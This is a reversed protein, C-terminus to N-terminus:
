KIKEILKELMKENKECAKKIIDAQTALETFLPDACYKKVTEKSFKDSLAMAEDRLYEDDDSRLIQGLDNFNKESFLDFAASYLSNSFDIAKGTKNNIVEWCSNITAGTAIFYCKEEFTKSYNEMTDHDYPQVIIGECFDYLSSSICVRIRYLLKQLITNYKEVESYFTKLSEKTSKECRYFLFTDKNQWKNLDINRLPMPTFLADIGIIDDLLPTLLERGTKEILDNSKPKSNLIDTISKLYSPIVNIILVIISSGLTVFSLIQPYYTYVVFCLAGLIVLSTILLIIRNRTM